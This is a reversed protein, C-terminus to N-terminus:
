HSVETVNWSLLPLDTHHTVELSHQRGGPAIVKSSVESVEITASKGTASEPSGNNSGSATVIMAPRINEPIKVSTM